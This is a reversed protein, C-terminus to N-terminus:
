YGQLAKEAKEVINEIKKYVSFLAAAANLKDDAFTKLKSWDIIRDNPFSKIIASITFLIKRDKTKLLVSFMM